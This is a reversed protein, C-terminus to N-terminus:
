QPISLNGASIRMKSKLVPAYMMTISSGVVGSNSPAQNRSSPPAPVPSKKQTAPSFEVVLTPTCSPERRVKPPNPFTIVPYRELKKPEPSHSAKVWQVPRM